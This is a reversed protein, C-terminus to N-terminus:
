VRAHALTIPSACAIGAQRFPPWVSYQEIRGRTAMQSKLIEQQELLLILNQM